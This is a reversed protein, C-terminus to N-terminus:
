NGEVEADKEEVAKTAECAAAVVDLADYISVSLMVGTEKDRISFTGLEFSATITAESKEHPVINVDMGEAEHFDTRVCETKRLVGDQPGDQPSDCRCIEKEENM